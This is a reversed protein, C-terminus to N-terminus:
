LDRLEKMTETMKLTFVDLNGSLRPRYIHSSYGGPLRFADSRTISQSHKLEMIDQGRDDIINYTTTANPLTIAAAVTAIYGGEIAEAITGKVLQVRAAYISDGITPGTNKPKVYSTLAGGAVPSGQIAIQTPVTTSLGTVTIGSTGIGALSGPGSIIQAADHTVSGGGNRYLQIPSESVTGALLWVLQTYPVDPTFSAISQQINPNAAVSTEIKDFTMGDAVAANATVTVNSRIWSAHDLEDSRVILNTAWRPHVTAVKTAGVYGSIKREQVSGDGVTLRATLGRYADDIGSALATLTLTTSSGAQATGDNLLLNNQKARAYLQFLLSRNDYAAWLPDNLLGGNLTFENLLSENLGSRDVSQVQWALKWTVTGDTVNDGLVKGAMSPPAAASTGGVTCALHYVTLKVTQGATYATTNARAPISAMADGALIAANEAHDIIRQAESAAFDGGLAGWDADIQAWALNVDRVLPFDKGEWDFPSLNLEDGEWEYIKDTDVYYLKATEVDAYVATVNYDLDTLPGLDNTRDFVFGKVTSGNNYFGFYAGQYIAAFITDPFFQAQWQDRKVWPDLAPITGGVGVLQMGNPSPYIVGFSFSMVGRGSTCPESADDTDKSMFSPHNGTVKYAKGKTAAVVTSGVIGLGVGDFDLLIRYRVPWAHLNNPESFCLVNGSLGVAFNGPHLIIRKLDSPPQVWESGVVGLEFSPCIVGLASDLVTDTDTTTTIDREKVLQYASIGTSGVLLRYVRMKSLGYNGAATITGTAPTAPTGTVTYTFTDADVLTIVVTGNYEAQVAGAITVKSGNYFGHATLGVTAVDGIRNISTVSKKGIELASLNITFGTAGFTVDNSPLSPPGEEGWDSVYTAIYNRTSTTGTGAAGVAAVPAPPAPLGIERHDFPYPTGGTALAFTTKRPSLEGTYFLRFDTAGPSKVLNVDYAFALWYDTVGSYIRYITQIGVVLPATILKGRRWSSLAGSFTKLNDARTAAGNPLLQPSIRPIRGGFGKVAISAMLADWEDKISGHSNPSQPCISQPKRM